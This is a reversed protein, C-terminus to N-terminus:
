FMLDKKLTSNIVKKKNKQLKRLKIMNLNLLIM